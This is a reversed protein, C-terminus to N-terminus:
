FHWDFTVAGAHSTQPASLLADYTIHVEASDRLRWDFGVGAGWMDAAASVGTVTFPNGPAGALTATTAFASAGFEHGYNVYATWRFPGGTDPAALRVGVIGRVSTVSQGAITLNLSDAGSESIAPLMAQVYDVGVTPMVTMGGSQLRRGIQVAAMTDNSVYNARAMRGVFHIPRAVQATDSTYGALADVTWDGFAYQAYAAFLGTTVGASQGIGDNLNVASQWQGIATGIRLQPSLVLDYGTLM